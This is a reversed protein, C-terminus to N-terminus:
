RSKCLCHCCLYFSVSFDVISSSFSSLCCAQLQTFDVNFCGILAAPEPLLKKSDLSREELDLM